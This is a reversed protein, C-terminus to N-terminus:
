SPSSTPQSVVPRCRATPWRESRWDPLGGRTGAPSRAWHHLGGRAEPTTKWSRGARPSGTPASKSPWSKEVCRKLAETAEPTDVFCLASVDERPWSGDFPSESAPPKRAAALLEGVAWTDGHMARARLYPVQAHDKFRPQLEKLYALTDKDSVAALGDVLGIGFNGFWGEGQERAIVSAVVRKITALSRKDDQTGLARLTSSFSSDGISTVAAHRALYDFMRRDRVYGMGDYVMAVNYIDRAAAAAKLRNFGEDFFREALERGATRM